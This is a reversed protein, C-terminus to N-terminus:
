VTHQYPGASHVGKAYSILLCLAKKSVTHHLMRRQMALYNCSIWPLGQPSHFRVCLWLPSCFRSNYWLSSHHRQEGCLLLPSHHRRFVSLTLMRQSDLISIWLLTVFHCGYYLVMFELCFVSWLLVVLCM